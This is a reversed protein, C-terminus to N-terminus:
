MFQDPLSLYHAVEERKDRKKAGMAYIRCKNCLERLALGRMGRSLTESKLLKVLSEIRFRDMAEYKRSLQDAHGGTKVILPKEIFLVPYRCSIRLWLDYDECVALNEDFLGSSDLVDRKIVVSSPSIICLPLCQEFIWGTYKRHRLKQNVRKGNRIWIEDTYSVKFGEMDMLKMQVSLKGKLWLDDVDLFALFDGKSAKIGANRASSIGGNEKYLYSVPLGQVEEASDDTSGDDVVIIEKEPYDQSLTSLVAQKLYSKRNYTTVIISVLAVGDDIGQHINDSGNM